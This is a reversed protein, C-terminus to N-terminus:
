GIISGLAEGKSEEQLFRAKQAMQYQDQQRISIFLRGPKDEEKAEQEKKRKSEQEESEKVIEDSLGGKNKIFEEAQKYLESPALEEM